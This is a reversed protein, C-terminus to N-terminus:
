NNMTTKPIATKKTVITTTTKMAIKKMTIASRSRWKEVNLFNHEKLREAVIM